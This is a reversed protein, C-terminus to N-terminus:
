NVVNWIQKESLRGRSGPMPPRGNSIKWFFDGKIRCGNFVPERSKENSQM